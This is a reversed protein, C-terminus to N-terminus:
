YQLFVGVLPAWAMTPGYEAVITPWLILEGSGISLGVLVAGPGIMQAVGMSKAPLDAPALPALNHGTKM